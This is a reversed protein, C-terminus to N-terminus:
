GFVAALGALDRAGTERLYWPLHAYRHLVTLAFLTRPDPRTGAARALTAFLAPDGHAVFLGAAVFDYPAPGVLADGFDLVGVPVGSGDAFVHGPGIETHLLVAPGKAAALAAGLLGPLGTELSALDAAPLGLARQRALTTSAREELFSPWGGPPTLAPSSPPDVAHLRALVEGVAHASRERESPSLVPWVDDLPRGPLRTMLFYSWGDLTGAAVVEPTAVGLRGAISELAAREGDLGAAWVPPVIKLVRAGAAYVLATGGLREPEGEIGHRAFLARAAPRWRADDKRAVEYEDVTIEPLLVRVGEEKV